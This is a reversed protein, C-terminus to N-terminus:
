DSEGSCSAKCPEAPEALCHMCLGMRTGSLYLCYGTNEAAPHVGFDVNDEICHTNGMWQQRTKMQIYLVVAVHLVTKLGSLTISELYSKM